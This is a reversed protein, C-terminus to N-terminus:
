FARPMWIVRERLQPAIESHEQWITHRRFHFPRLRMGRPHSGDDHAPRRELTGTRKRHSLRQTDFNVGSELLNAGSGHHAADAGLAAPDLKHVHALSVAFLEAAADVFQQILKRLEYPLANGATLDVEAFCTM